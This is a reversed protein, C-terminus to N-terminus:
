RGHRAPSRRAENGPEIFQSERLPPQESSCAAILAAPDHFGMRQLCALLSLHRREAEAGDCPRPTRSEVQLIM